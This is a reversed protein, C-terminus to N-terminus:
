HKLRKISENLKKASKAYNTSEFNIANHDESTTDETTSLEIDKDSSLRSMLDDQDKANTKIRHRMEYGNRRRIWQKICRRKRFIKFSLFIVLLVILFLVLLVIAIYLARFHEDFYDLVFNFWNGLDARIGEVYDQHTYNFTSNQTEALTVNQKKCVGEICLQVVSCNGRFFIAVFSSMSTFRSEFMSKGCGIIIDLHPIESYLTLSCYNMEDRTCENIDYDFLIQQETEDLIMNEAEVVIKRKYHLGVSSPYVDHEINSCMEYSEFYPCNLPVFTYTLRSSLCELKADIIMGEKITNVDIPDINVNCCMGPGEYLVM